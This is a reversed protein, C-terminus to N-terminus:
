FVKLYSLGRGQEAPISRGEWEKRLGMLILSLQSFYLPLHCKGAGGVQTWFGEVAELDPGGM